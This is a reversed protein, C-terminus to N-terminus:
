GVKALAGLNTRSIKRNNNCKLFTFEESSKNISQKIQKLQKNLDSLTQSKISQKWGKLEILM